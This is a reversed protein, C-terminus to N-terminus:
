QRGKLRKKLKVITYYIKRGLPRVFGPLKNYIGRKANVSKFSSKEIAYMLGGEKFNKEFSDKEPHKKKSVIVKQNKRVATEFDTEFLTLEDISELYKQGKATHVFVVSVGLENYFRDKESVGWFDGIMIDATRNNGKFKCKYCANKGYVTFAYGYETDAFEKKFVQGDEFKAYLYTPIWKGEKHKVSFDVVKSGYKEELYRVYQAHVQTHTPGHCVLECTILNDYERGLMLNLAGVICPLGTFLVKEGADLLKKVKNYIDNKNADIYKSGKLRDLDKEDNTVIYEASYMDESYVVGAVYGGDRIMRRSLATAMGGSASELLDKNNNIYGGYISISHGKLDEYM